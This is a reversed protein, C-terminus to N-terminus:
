PTQAEVSLEPWRAVLGSIIRDWDAALGREPNVRLRMDFVDDLGFPAEVSLGGDRELRLGVAFAPCVFRRLAEATSQLPAYSHVFKQPFWLHVRAQNRVQVLDRLPPELASAIRHIVDDEAAFSTDRDYYGVDYDKIGYSVPRDTLTNWVTQYVAGSFVLPDPLAQQRVVRLVTMLTPSRQVIAALELSLDAAM